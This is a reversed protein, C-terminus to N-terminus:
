VVVTSIALRRSIGYNFWIGCGEVDMATCVDMKHQVHLDLAKEYYRIASAADSLNHCCQAIRDLTIMRTLDAMDAANKIFPIHELSDLYYKKALHYQEAAEYQAAISFALEHLHREQPSVSQAIAYARQTLQRAEMTKGNEAAVTAQNITYVIQQVPADSRYAYAAVAGVGTALFLGVLVVEKRAWRMFDAKLEEYNKKQHIARALPRRLAMARSAASPVAARFMM